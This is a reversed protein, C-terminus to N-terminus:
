LLEISYRIGFESLLNLFLAHNDISTIYWERNYLRIM